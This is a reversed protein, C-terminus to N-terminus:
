DFVGGAPMVSDPAEQTGPEFSGPRAGPPPAGGFRHHEGRMGFRMAKGTGIRTIKESMRDLMADAQKQTLDGDKVAKDLDDKVAAKVATRVDALSTGNAKAVDAVSKGDRLQAMLQRETTGLAKALTQFVDFRMGFGHPGHRDFRPGFGPGGRLKLIGPGGRLGPGGLLHGSDKREQKIADAQKETLDGEKVAQDVQADLAAALADRLKQPTVDLRKAADDLVAQESQKGDDKTVGAIAAGAGGAVLAGSLALVAIRRKRM